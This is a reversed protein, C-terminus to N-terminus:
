SKPPKGPGLVQLDDQIDGEPKVRSCSYTMLGRPVEHDREAYILYM